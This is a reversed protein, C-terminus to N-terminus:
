KEKFDIVVGLGDKSKQIKIYLIVTQGDETTDITNYVDQWITHDYDSTMTKFIENRKLERVRKVIADEDKYGLNFAMKKTLRTIIRTAKNQLLSQIEELNYHARNMYEM